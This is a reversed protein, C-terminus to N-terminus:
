CTFIGLVTGLVNCTSSLYLDEAMWRWYIGYPQGLWWPLPRLPGQLEESTSEKQNKLSVVTQAAIFLLKLQFGLEADASIFLFSCLFAFLCPFPIFTYHLKISFSVQEEPVSPLFRLSNGEHTYRFGRQYLTM